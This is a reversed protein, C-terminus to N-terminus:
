TATRAPAQPIDLLPGTFRQIRRVVQELQSASVPERWEELVAHVVLRGEQVEVGTVHAGALVEPLHIRIPPLRRAVASLRNWGRVVVADPQLVLAPGEVRAVLDVHGWGPRAALSARVAGDGSLTVSALETREAVVQDLAVQDLTAAVRVPAAVLTPPPGPQVHVNCAALRLAALRGGPWVVDDAEVVVEGLQGLALGVPPRALRLSRLELGVEAEGFRLDLHRGVLRSTAADVVEKAVVAPAFGFLEVVQRMADTLPAPMAPTWSRMADSWWDPRFWDGGSM